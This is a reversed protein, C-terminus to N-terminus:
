CGTGAAGAPLLRPSAAAAAATLRPLGRAKEPAACACTGPARAVRGRVCRDHLLPAMLEPFSDRLEKFLATLMDDDKMAEIFQEDLQARPFPPNHM